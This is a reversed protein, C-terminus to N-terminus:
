HNASSHIYSKTLLSGIYVEQSIREIEERMFQKLKTKYESPIFVRNNRSFLLNIKKKM